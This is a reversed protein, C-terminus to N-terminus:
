RIPKGSTGLSITELSYCFPPKDKQILTSKGVFAIEIGDFRTDVTATVSVVGEMRDLTTFIPLPYYAANTVNPLSLLGANTDQVTLHIAVNGHM